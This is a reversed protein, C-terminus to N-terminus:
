LSYEAVTCSEGFRNKVKIMKRIIPHGARKLDNVRAALRLIGLESIAEFQTISGRHRLYEYVRECQNKM